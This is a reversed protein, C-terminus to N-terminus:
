YRHTSQTAAVTVGTLTVVYKWNTPVPISIYIDSGALLATAGAVGGLNNEAGTTPGYTVLITGATTAAVNVTVLTDFSANPTVVAASVVAGNTVAAHASTNLGGSATIIGTTVNISGTTVQTVQISAQIQIGVGGDTAGASVVAWTNTAIYEYIATAYKSGPITAAGRITVSGGGNINQGANPTVTVNLNVLDNLIIQVQDGVTPAAPLTITVAATCIWADWSSANQDVATTKINFPYRSIPL